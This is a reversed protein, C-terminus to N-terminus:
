DFSTKKKIKLISIQWNLKIETKKTLDEMAKKRNINGAYNKKKIECNLMHSNKGVQACM